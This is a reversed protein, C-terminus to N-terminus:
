KQKYLSQKIEFLEQELIPLIKKNTCNHIILKLKAYIKQLNVEKKSRKEQLNKRIDEKTIPEIGEQNTIKAHSGHEQRASNHHKGRYWVRKGTWPDATM